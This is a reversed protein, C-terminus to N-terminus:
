SNNTAKIRPNRQQEVGPKISDAAGCAPNPKGGCSNQAFGIRTAPPALEIGSPQHQFIFTEIMMETEM